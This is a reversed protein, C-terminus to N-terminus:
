FGSAPPPRSLVDAPVKVLTVDKDPLDKPTEVAVQTKEDSYFALQGICQEADERVAAVKRQLLQVKTYHHEAAEDESRAIAERLDNAAADSVKLLGRLQLVKENVCNLKVIDKEDRAQDLLKQAKGLLERMSKLAKDTRQKQEDFSLREGGRALSVRPAPEEARLAPALLVVLAALVVRMTTM